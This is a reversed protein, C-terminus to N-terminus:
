TRQKNAPLQLLYDDYSMLMEGEAMDEIAEKKDGYITITGDSFQVPNGDEKIIVYDRNNDKKDEPNERGKFSTTNKM